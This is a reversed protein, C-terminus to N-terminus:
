GFLGWRGWGWLGGRLCFVLLGIYLAFLCRRAGLLARISRPEDCSTAPYTIKSYLTTINLPHLPPQSQTLHNRQFIKLHTLYLPSQPNIYLVIYAERPNPAPLFPLLIRSIYSVRSSFSPLHTKYVNHKQTAQKSATMVTGYDLMCNGRTV